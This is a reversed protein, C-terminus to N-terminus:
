PLQQNEKKIAYNNWLVSGIISINGLYLFPFELEHYISSIVILISSIFAVIFPGYFVSRKTYYISYLNVSLLGATLPALFSSMDVISIGFASLFSSLTSIYFSSCTGTVTCTSLAPTILSMGNAIWTSSKVVEKFSLCLNVLLVIAPPIFVPTLTHDEDDIYETM